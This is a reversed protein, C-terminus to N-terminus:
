LSGGLDPQNILAILLQSTVVLKGMIELVCCYGIDMVDEWALYEQQMADIKLWLRRLGRLARTAAIAKPYILPPEDKEGLRLAQYCYPLEKHIAEVVDVVM